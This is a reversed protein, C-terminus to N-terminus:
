NALFQCLSCIRKERPCNYRLDLGMWYLQRCLRHIQKIVRQHRFFYANIRGRKEDEVTQNELPCATGNM